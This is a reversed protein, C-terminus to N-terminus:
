PYFIALHARIVAAGSGTLWDTLTRLTEIDSHWRRGAQWRKQDRHNRERM